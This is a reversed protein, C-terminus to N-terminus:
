TSILMRSMDYIHVDRGELPNLPAPNGASQFGSLAAWQAVVCALAEGKKLNLGAKPLRPWPIKAVHNQLYMGANGVMQSALGDPGVLVTRMRPVIGFVPICGWSMIDDRQLLGLLDQGPRPNFNSAAFPSNLVNFNAPEDIVMWVYQLMAVNNPMDVQAETSDSNTGSAGDMGVVPDLWAYMHGQFRHLKGNQLAQLGPSAPVSPYFSNAQEANVYKAYFADVAGFGAPIVIPTNYNPLPTGSGHLQPSPVWHKEM